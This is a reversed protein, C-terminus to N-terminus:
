RSQNSRPQSPMIQTSLRRYPINDVDLIGQPIVTQTSNMCDTTRDTDSTTLSKLEIFGQFTWVFIKGDDRVYEGSDRRTFTSNRRTIM